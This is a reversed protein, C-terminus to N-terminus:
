WAGACAWPLSSWWEWSSTRVETARPMTSSASALWPFPSASGTVVRAAARGRHDSYDVVSRQVPKSVPVVPHEPEDGPKKGGAHCAGAAIALAVLSGRLVQLLKM